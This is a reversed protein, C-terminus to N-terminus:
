DQWRGDAGDATQWGADMAGAGASGNEDQDAERAASAQRANALAALDQLICSGPGTSAPKGREQLRAAVEERSLGGLGKLGPKPKQRVELGGSNGGTDAQIRHLGTGEQRKAPQSRNRTPWIDIGRWSQVALAKIGKAKADEAAKTGARFYGDPDAFKLLRETESIQGDLGAIEKKLAGVKDLEIQTEVNSMFADLPDAAVEATAPAAEAGGKSGAWPLESVLAEELALQEQLKTREMILAELVPAVCARQQRLKRAM